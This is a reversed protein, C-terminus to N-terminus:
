NWFVSFCHLATNLRKAGIVAKNRMKGAVRGVIVSRHMRFTDPFIDSFIDDLETYFTQKFNIRM